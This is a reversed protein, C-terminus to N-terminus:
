RSGGSSSPVAGLQLLGLGRQQHRWGSALDSISLSTLDAGGESAASAHAKERKLDRVERLLAQLLQKEEGQGEEGATEKELLSGPLGVQQAAASGVPRAEDEDSSDGDNAWKSYDVPM